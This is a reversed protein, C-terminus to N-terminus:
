PVCHSLSSLTHPHTMRPNVTQDFTYLAENSHPYYCQYPKAESSIGFLASVLMNPNSRLVAYLHNMHLHTMLKGDNGPRTFATDIGLEADTKALM